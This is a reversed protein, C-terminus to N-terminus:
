LNWIKLVVLFKSVVLWVKDNIHLDCLENFMNFYKKKFISSTINVKMTKKEEMVHNEKYSIALIPCINETNRKLNM